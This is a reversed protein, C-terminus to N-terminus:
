VISKHFTNKRKHLRSLKLVETFEGLGNKDITKSLTKGQDKFFYLPQM